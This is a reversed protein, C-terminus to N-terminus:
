LIDKLKDNDGLNFDDAETTDDAPKGIAKSLDTSLKTIQESMQTFQDNLKTFDENDKLSFEASGGKAKEKDEDSLQEDGGTGQKSFKTEINQMSATLTSFNTALLTLPETLATQLQTFQAQNMEEDDKKHFLNKFSFAQKEPPKNSNTLAYIDTLDLTSKYNEITDPQRKNSSFNARTTYCCAPYDTTALGTLYTKGSGQFDQDIEISYYVAQGSQNLLVFSANPSLIAYLCLVGDDNKAKYVEMVDGLMGGNLDIQYYNKALWGGFEASHDLNIRAGYKNYHYTEVIDDIHAKTVERGDVTMGVSCICQPLTRLDGAM